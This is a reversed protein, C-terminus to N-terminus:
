EKSNSDEPGLKCMEHARLRRVTVKALVFNTLEFSLFSAQPERDFSPLVHVKRQLTPNLPSHMAYPTSRGELSRESAPSM